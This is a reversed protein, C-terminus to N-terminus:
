FSGVGGSSKDGAGGGGGPIGGNQPPGGVKYNHVWAGNALYVNTRPVWISVTRIRHPVHELSVIEIEGDVTQMLDGRMLSEAASFGFRTGRRILFPHEFTAVISKNIRHGGNHYGHKIAGVKAPVDGLSPNTSSWDYFGLDNPDRVLHDIKASAIDDGVRLSEIPVERGDSLRIPTGYELCTPPPDDDSFVDGSFPDGGKPPPDWPIDITGSGFLDGGKPPPPGGGSDGSTLLLGTYMAGIPLGYIDLGSAFPGYTPMWCCGRRSIKGGGFASAPTFRGCSM